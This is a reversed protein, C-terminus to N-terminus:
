KLKVTDQMDLISRNGQAVVLRFDCLDGQQRACMYCCECGDKITDIGPKCLNEASTCKCPYDCNNNFQLFIFYM